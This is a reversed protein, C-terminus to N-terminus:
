FVKENDTDCLEFMKAHYPLVCFVEKHCLLFCAHVPVDNEMENKECSGSDRFEWVDLAFDSDRRRVGSSSASVVVGM